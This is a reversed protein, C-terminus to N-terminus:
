RMGSAIFLLLIGSRGGGRGRDGDPMRDCEDAECSDKFLPDLADSAETSDGGM